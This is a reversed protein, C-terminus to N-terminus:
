KLGEAGGLDSLTPRSAIARLERLAAAMSLLLFVDEFVVWAAHELARWPTASLVGYVSQPWLSGRILHDLATIITAIALVRWDRYFALFALSGFVHFHTEIRGGTVHILLISFFMQSVAICYRNVMAGPNRLSLYARPVAILVGLLVAAYVHPAAGPAEVAGPSPAPWSRSRLASFVSFSSFGFMRDTQRVLVDYQASFLEDARSASASLRAPNTAM